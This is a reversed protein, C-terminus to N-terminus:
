WGVVYEHLAKLCYKTVYKEVSPADQPRRVQSRGFEELLDRFIQNNLFAAKDLGWGDRGMEHGRLELLGHVHLTRNIHLETGLFLRGKTSRRIVKEIELLTSQAHQPHRPGRFTITLFWTWNYRGLFGIWAQKLADTAEEGVAPVAM